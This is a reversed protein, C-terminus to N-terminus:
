ASLRRKGKAVIRGAGEWAAVAKGGLASGKKALAKRTREGTAPAWLLGVVAGAVFALALGVVTRGTRAVM